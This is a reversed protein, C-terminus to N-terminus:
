RPNGPAEATFFGGGEEAGGGAWAPSMLKNGPNGLHGPSPFPLYVLTCFVTANVRVCGDGVDNIVLM